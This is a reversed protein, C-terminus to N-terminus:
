PRELIIDGYWAKATDGTNDTDTMIAVGLLGPPESGFARRYDAVIDREVTVWQSAQDQGSNVAIMMTDDTYPNAIIEGRPLRNAWIYNLARGPLEEGFLTSVTKRRAREFWGAKDPEFEFAVYIRAPYDDGSKRRADGDELVNAVKWSWRLTLSDGPVLSVRAIMGSASDDARAEVVQRGNDTVLTYRTHREIDPFELPEWGNDGALTQLESFVPVLSSQAVLASPGAALCVLVLTQFTRLM